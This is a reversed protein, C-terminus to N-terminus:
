ITLTAVEVDRDKQQKAARREVAWGKVAMISLIWTFIFCVLAVTQTVLSDTTARIV